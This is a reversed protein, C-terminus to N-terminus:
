YARALLGVGSVIMLLSVASHFQRTTMRRYLAFGGIAGLLAFPVFSADRLVDSQPPASWMLCTVTVLQMALIFPQYVARQQDKDGGRWSCWITVVLGPAGSLGGIVGGLAGALADHWAAGRVPHIRGRALVYGGYGIVIAGLVAAYIRADIHILIAVGLPTTSAGAALMPALARWRISARLQWVAYAQMAISCLAMTTVAQVPDFRLYALASGALVAFAFGAISSVLAAALVVAAAAGEAAPAAQLWVSALVVLTAVMAITYGKTGTSRSSDM